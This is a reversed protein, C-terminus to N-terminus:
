LRENLQFIKLQFVQTSHTSLKGDVGGYHECRSHRVVLLQACGPEYEDQLYAVLGCDRKIKLEPSGNAGGVAELAADDRGVIDERSGDDAGSGAVAEHNLGQEACRWSGLGAMRRADHPREVERDRACTRALFKSGGGSCSLTCQCPM